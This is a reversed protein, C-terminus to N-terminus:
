REVIGAMSLCHWAVSRDCFTLLKGDFVELASYEAGRKSKDGRDTDVPAEGTMQLAYSGEGQDGLYKLKGYAFYSEWVKEAIHSAEDQDAILGIWFEKGVEPATKKANMAAWAAKHEAFKDQLPAHGNEFPSDDVYASDARDAAREAEGGEGVAASPDGAPPQPAAGAAPFLARLKKQAQPTGFGCAITTM